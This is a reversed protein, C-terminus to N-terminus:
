CPLTFGIFKRYYEIPNNAESLSKEVLYHFRTCIDENQFHKQNAVVLGPHKFYSMENVLAILDIERLLPKLDQYIEKDKQSRLLKVESLIYNEWAQEILKFDQCYKKLGSVMDGVYIEHFDHAFAHFKLYKELDKIENYNKQMKFLSNVKNIIYPTEAIYYCLILHTLLNCKIAGNYRCLNRASNIIDYFSIITKSPTDFYIVQGSMTIADPLCQQNNM